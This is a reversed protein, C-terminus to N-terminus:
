RLMDRTCLGTLDEYSVRSQSRQIAEVFSATEIDGVTGGLSSYSTVVNPQHGSAVVYQLLPLPQM